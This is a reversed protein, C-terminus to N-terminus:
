SDVGLQQRLLGFSQENEILFVPIGVQRAIGDKIESDGIMLCEEPKVKLHDLIEQYYHTSKKTYHMNEAHTVWEFDQCKLAGRSMRMEVVEKPWVPNTALVLRHTKKKLLDQVLTEGARIPFFHPLLGEFVQHIFQHMWNRTEDPSMNPFHRNVVLYSREANTLEPSGSEVERKLEDLFQLARRPSVWEAGLIKLVRWVFNFRLPRNNSGLLTQDLDFLLVIPKM